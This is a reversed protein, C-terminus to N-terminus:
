TWPYFNAHLITGLVFYGIFYLKVIKEHFRSKSTLETAIWYMAPCSSAILRTTVQVNISISSFLVLLVAQAYYPFQLIDLKRLTMSSASLASTQQARISKYKMNSGSLVLFIIPLALMFNPLQKLEYYEFLGVNWYKRQVQHYPHPITNSCWSPSEYNISGKEKREDTLGKVCFLTYSYFQFILYGSCAILASILVFLTDQILEFLACLYYIITWGELNTRLLPLYKLIIQYGIFISTVIGNSRVATSLAILIIPLSCIKMLQHLNTLPKFESRDSTSQKDNYNKAKYEILFMSTFTLASYLSETYCSSFFVGAPNFCFWRVVNMAYIHNGDKVVKTLCYLSIAAIPFLIFNNLIVGIIASIIYDILQTERLISNPKKIDDYDRMYHPLNEHTVNNIFLLRKVITITLPYVPLFALHRETSYGDITIELLYQSDWRTLGEISKYLSWYPEPKSRDGNQNSSYIRNIEESYKNRYADAQHDTIFLNSIFQIFLILCRSTVAIRYISNFNQKSIIIM